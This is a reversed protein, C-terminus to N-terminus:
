MSLLCIVHIYLKCLCFVFFMHCAYLINKTKQRHLNYICTMHKLHRKDTYITYLHWINKTKQRHLNYICTMHRKLSLFCIVHIYLKCLCFVYSMYICNVYVLCKFCIVHIYLKCLCFVNLVYSMYISKDTYITYVDKTQTFQIYMDYTKFTTQRHWNYICPMHKKDKKYSLLCKFCIVHIYLKCLCFVNLVYSMYICNVCVFSLFCIVHIYLKCLCFVYPM